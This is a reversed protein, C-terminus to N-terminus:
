LYDNMDIKWLYERCGAVDKTVILSDDEILHFGFSLRSAELLALRLVGAEGM